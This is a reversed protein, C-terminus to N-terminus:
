HGDSRGNDATTNDVRNWAARVAQKAEDWGIGAAGKAQEWDHQLNSEVQEFRKGSYRERGETGLRYALDYESFDRGAEYYPENTYQQKWHARENEYLSTTTDMRNQQSANPTSKNSTNKNSTNPTNVQTM